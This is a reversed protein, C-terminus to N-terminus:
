PHRKGGIDDQHDQSKDGVQDGGQRLVQVTHLDAQLEGLQNGGVAPYGRSAASAVDANEPM